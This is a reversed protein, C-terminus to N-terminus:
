IIEIKVGVQGLRLEDGSTIVVPATLADGNL